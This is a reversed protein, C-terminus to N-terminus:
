ILKGLSKIKDQHQEKRIRVARSSFIILLCLSALVAVIGV